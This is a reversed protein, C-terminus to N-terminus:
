EEVGRNKKVEFYVKYKTEEINLIEFYKEIIELGSKKTFLSYDYENKEKQLPISILGSGKEVLIDNVKSLASDMDPLHELVDGLFFYDFHNKGLIYIDAVECNKVGMRHALIIALASNDIGFCKLDKIKNLENLIYGDGCGIDILIGKKDSFFDAVKQAHEKYSPFSNWHYAGWKEYKNFKKTIM